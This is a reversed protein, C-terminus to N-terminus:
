KMHKYLRFKRRTAVNRMKKKPKRKNRGHNM